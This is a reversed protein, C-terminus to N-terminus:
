FLIQFCFTQWERIGYIWLKSRSKACWAKFESGETFWIGTGPQRLQMNASHWSQPDIDGLFRLMEHRATAIELNTSSERSIPSEFVSIIIEQWALIDTAITNQLDALGESVGQQRALLVLLTSRTVTLLAQVQVATDKPQLV